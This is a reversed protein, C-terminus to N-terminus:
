IVVAGLAIWSYFYFKCSQGVYILWGLWHRRPAHGLFYLLTRGCHHHSYFVHRRCINRSKRGPKGRMNGFIIGFVKHHPSPKLFKKGRTVTLFFRPHETIRLLLIPMSSACPRSFTPVMRIIVYGNELKPLARNKFCWNETVQAGKNPGVWYQLSSAATSLTLVFTYALNKGSLVTYYTDASLSGQM